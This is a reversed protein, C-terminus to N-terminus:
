ETKPGLTAGCDLFFSLIKDWTSPKSLVGWPFHAGKFSVAMM